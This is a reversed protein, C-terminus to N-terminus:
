APGGVLPLGLSRRVRSSAGDCAVAYKGKFVHRKGSKTEVATALIGNDTEKASEVKWGFRLDVLPNKDCIEKLWREFIIQSLRQWPELPQTGDNSEAITRRWEDVGPLEWTTILRGGLGSCMTVNYPHHSPM